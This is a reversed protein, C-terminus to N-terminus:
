SRQNSRRKHACAPPQCPSRDGRRSNGIDLSEAVAAGGFSFEKDCRESEKEAPLLDASRWPVCPSVRWQVQSKTQLPLTAFNTSRIEHWIRSITSNQSTCGKSCWSINM